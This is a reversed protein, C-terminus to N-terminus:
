DDKEQTELVLPAKIEDGYQVGELRGGYQQVRGEALIIWIVEDGDEWFCRQSFHKEEVEYRHRLNSIKPVLSDDRRKPHGLLRYLDAETMGVKLRQYNGVTVKSEPAKPHSLSELVLGFGLVVVTILLVLVWPWILPGSRRRRRRQEGAHGIGWTSIVFTKECHCCRVYKTESTDSWVCLNHCFPCSSHVMM